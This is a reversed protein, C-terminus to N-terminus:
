GLQFRYIMSPDYDYIELTFRSLDLEDFAESDAFANRFVQYALTLTRTEGPSIATLSMFDPVSGAEFRPMGNMVELASYSLVYGNGLCGPSIQKLADGNLQFRGIDLLESDSLNTVEADVLVFKSEPWLPAPGNGVPRESIQPYWDAFSDFSLAKASIVTAEFSPLEVVYGEESPDVECEVEKVEVSREETRAEYNYCVEPQIARYKEGQTIGEVRLSDGLAVDVVEGKQIYTSRGYPYSHEWTDPQAAKPTGPLYRGAFWGLALTLVLLVAAGTWVHWKSVLRRM